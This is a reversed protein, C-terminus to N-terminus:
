MENYKCWNYYSLISWYKPNNSDSIIKNFYHEPIFKKFYDYKIDMETRMNKLDIAFGKKDKYINENLVRDEVSKKFIYKLIKNNFRLNPPIRYSLEILESDLLPPRSELSVSLSARDVKTLIDDPLYAKFDTEQACNLLNNEKINFNNSIVFYYYGYDAFYSAKKSFYYNYNNEILKKWIFDTNKIIQNLVTYKRIERYREYGGFLEDGGDGSLSVTVYKKAIESVFMTPIQSSDGLPEDYYTPVKDLLKHFDLDTLIKTHHNTNYREAIKQAFATEDYEKNEFGISFTHINEKYKAATAVVASSDVGGSLFAGVPVDAVLRKKVSEDLKQKLEKIISMENFIYNGFKVSWYTKEKIGNINFTIYTAPKLKLIENYISQPAIFYGFKFYLNIASQNLTKNKLFPIISKLESAFIIKKDIISFHLPNIGVRDRALYLSKKNEDWIGFAFQGNLKSLLKELGWEEYGHILVETDSNSKFDHNKLEKKLEKYNFIEGNFTIWVTQNENSMPQKAKNSLDIISLRRHGLYGYEFSNVGFGDPGRHEMLNLAKKFEEKSPLDKNFDFYGLIGCM